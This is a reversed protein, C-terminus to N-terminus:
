MFFYSIFYFFGFSFLLQLKNQMSIIIYFCFREHGSYFWLVRDSPELTANIKQSFHEIMEKLLFGSKLRALLKTGTPYKLRILAIKEMLGNPQIAEQAWDLLRKLM